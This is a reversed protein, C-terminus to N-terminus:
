TARALAAEIARRTYVEAMATRYERDAHIDSNVSRNVTAEAAAGAIAEASGDSGRLGEEVATARYAAGSVGTLAVRAHEIRGAVRAVIACVGVMAYGSAPQALKMYAGGAGEPLAPRRIEIVLEDPRLATEFPGQFFDTAAVVREEIASRLVISADLAILMAPLDSAPDAHAVAGGVTARNRVQVDAAQLLGERVFDLKTAEILEAYTTLAGMSASGDAAYRLGKLEPLRGIDILADTRALRLKLLPLLSHGGALVKADPDAAIARLAEDVTAPRQYSFAAPIM